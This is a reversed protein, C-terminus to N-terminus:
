ERSDAAGEGGDAAAAPPGPTRPPAAALPRGLPVTKWRGGTSFAEWGWPVWRTLGRALWLAWALMAVRFTWMPLSGIAPEPLPGATRDVFWTMEWQSSGNGEIQMDPQVLLGTHVAAYLCGAAILTWGVLAIQALDFAAPKEPPSRRRWSLALFWGAVLAAAAVPIQTMGLGLLLWAPTALPSLRWRGLLLAAAVVVVLDIWYLPVPGWDPGSLWWVFRGEPAKVKVTVNVAPAGLDVAPVADLVGPAHEQQWRVVVSRTGPQHPIALNRGEPRIPRAVGDIEVARVEAGEPLVVVQQGGRSTRASFRLDAELLRRGPTVELWAGDITLTQGPAAEPRLVSLTVSEGPWPAWTPRWAGEHVHHIPAIGEEPACRFIPSCRLTWRETFPVGTPAALVVREAPALTSDWAREREDRGLTALVAGAEVKLDDANVSEGELLPVKVALPTDARGLRVLRTHVLWPIGLDLERHVELRPSLAGGGSSDGSAAGSRATRTLQISGEVTGDAHLGDLTWGEGAFTLRRPRAGFQLTVLDSAPLAGEAVVRHVGPDLRVHIAGDHLRAAQASPRGDVEIREPTWATAPGPLPFTSAAQVHVEAEVRLRDGRVQLGVAPVAACDPLCEPPRTLRQELEKLLEADPAAHAAPAALSGFALALAAAAGPPIGRGGLRRVGALRLGLAVLLAVQWLQLFARATPGLLWLRMSHGANVPGSWTLEHTRWTWSPVGPGTQVVANPDQQLAFNKKLILVKSSLYDGEGKDSSRSIGRLLGDKRGEMQGEDWEMAKQEVAPAAPEEPAPPPPPAGPAGAGAMGGGGVYGLTAVGSFAESLGDGGGLVPFLGEKVRREAFSILVLFLAVLLGGHALRATSRFGRRATTVRLLATTVLLGAWLWAPAGPEKRSFLLGLLAVAAWRWGLLRGFALTVLLVFFLDFLTFSEIWAGGAADVGSAGLLMWGPPLHLRATLSQVDTQWGVAPLRGPGGEVRSEAVISVASSRVEVGSVTGSRTVVQDVGSVAAHGLEFPAGLDLRWGRNMSGGLTDRVTFGGGDLDLWLDRHLEVANPSPDPEGRRLEAFRLPSAPEVVFAPLARWEEPLSTRAPDVAPPGSLIVARAADDTAVAWTEAGPWPAPVSPASLEAVPGDHLAHFTVHFTGPRVQLVLHGEPTFRAPVDAEVAIPRTRPLLVAGLDVERGKGSARLTVRTEVVVPVGDQVRRSVDIELSEAGAAAREGAGLRLRGEQFEPFPLRVGSVRLDVRGVRPPVGLSPPLDPWSFLGAVRHEGPSVTVFPTGGVDRVVAPRGDLTVRQPWARADGPLPVAIERDARLDLTFSAGSAHADVSLAGPWVCETSGSPLAVCNLGPHRALVWEKWPALEPPLDAGSVARPLLALLLLLLAPALHPRPHRPLSPPTPM